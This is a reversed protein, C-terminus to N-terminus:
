LSEGELAAPLLGLGASHQTPATVAAEGELQPPGSPVRQRRCTRCRHAPAPLSSRVLELGCESCNLLLLLPHLILIPQQWGKQACGKRACSQHARHWATIHQPLAEERLHSRKFKRVRGEDSM